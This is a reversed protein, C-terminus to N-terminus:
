APRAVRVSLRADAPALLRAADPWPEQGTLTTCQGGPKGPAADPDRDNPDAQLALGMLQASRPERWELEWQAANSCVRVGEVQPFLWRLYWPLLEARLTRSVDVIRRVTAMDLQEPRTTLHLYGRLEASGKPLNTALDAGKAEAEPLVPLEFRGEANPRLPLAREESLVALRPAHAFPKAKAAPRLEFDVRVLGQGHQQLGALLKNIRAYPLIAPDKVLAVTVDNLQAVSAAGEPSQPVTAGAIGSLAFLLAACAAPRPRTHM